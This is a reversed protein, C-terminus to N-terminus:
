RDGLSASRRDIVDLAPQGGHEVSLIRAKGVEPLAQGGMLADDQKCDSGVLPVAQVSRLCLTAVTESWGGTDLLRDLAQDLTLEDLRSPTTPVAHRVDEKPGPHPRDDITRLRGRTPLPLMRMGFPPM